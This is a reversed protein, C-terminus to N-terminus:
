RASALVRDWCTVAIVRAPGPSIAPTLAEWWLRALDADAEALVQKVWEVASMADASALKRVLAVTPADPQGESNVVPQGVLARRMLDPHQPSIRNAFVLTASRGLTEHLLLEGVVKEFLGINV